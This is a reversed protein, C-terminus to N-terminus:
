VNVDPSPAMRRRACAERPPIKASQAASATACTKCCRCVREGRHVVVGSERKYKSRIEGSSSFSSRANGLASRSCAASTDM